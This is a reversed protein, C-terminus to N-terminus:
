WPRVRSAVATKKADRVIEVFRKTITEMAQAKSRPRVGGGRYVLAIEIIDNVRLHEDARLNDLATEFATRSRGAAKLAKAHLSVLTPDAPNAKAM